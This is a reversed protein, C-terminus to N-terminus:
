SNPTAESNKEASEVADKRLGSIRCATDVLESMAEADQEAIQKVDEDKFLRKGEEDCACWAIIRACFLPDTNGKVAANHMVLVHERQPITMSRVFMTGLNPVEVREIKFTKAAFFQERTVTM